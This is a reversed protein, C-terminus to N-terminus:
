SFSRRKRKISQALNIVGARFELVEDENFGRVTSLLSNFFSQHEDSSPETRQESHKELYQIFKEEITAQKQRKFHLPKSIAPDISSTEEEVTDPKLASPVVNLVYDLFRLKEEYVYKKKRKVASGSQANLSQKYKRYTDKVNKWKGQVTKGLFM